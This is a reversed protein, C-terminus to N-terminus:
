NLKQKHWIRYNDNAHALNQLKGIAQALSKMHVHGNTKNRHGNDKMQTTMDYGLFM